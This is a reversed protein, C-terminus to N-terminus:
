NLFTYAIRETCTDCPCIDSHCRKCLVRIDTNVISPVGAISDCGLSRTARSYIPPLSQLLKRITMGRRDPGRCRMSTNYLIKERIFALNKRTPLPSLMSPTLNQFDTKIISYNVALSRALLGIDEDFLFGDNLLFIEELYDTKKIFDSIIKVGEACIPNCSINLSTIHNNISLMYILHKIGIPTIKNSFLNLRTVHTNYMLATSLHHVHSDTISSKSLNIDTIGSDNLSVDTLLKQFREEFSCFVQSQSNDFPSPSLLM